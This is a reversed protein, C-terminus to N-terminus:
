LTLYAFCVIAAFLCFMHEVKSNVAVAGKLAETALESLDFEQLSNYTIMMLSMPAHLESWVTVAFVFLDIAFVYEILLIWSGWVCLVIDLYYPFYLSVDM